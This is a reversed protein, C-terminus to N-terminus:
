SREILNLIRKAVHGCLITSNKAGGTASFLKDGHKQVFGLSGKKLYPRWGENVMKIKSFSLGFTADNFHDLLRTSAKELRPDDGGRPNKVTCGDGFVVKNGLDLLLSQRYPAWEKVTSQEIKYDIDLTAGWVADLGVMSVGRQLALIKTTWVGAAVVIAKKAFVSGLEGNSEEFEVTGQLIQNVKGQIFDKLLLQSCDVRKFDDEREKTINFIKMEHIGGTMEELLDMGENAEQQIVKNIWGDKWVGFSCKSAAMPEKNDICVVDLGNKQLYRTVMSGFLGAGIVVVDTKM